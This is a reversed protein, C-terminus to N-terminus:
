LRRVRVEGWSTARGEGAAVGRRCHRLDCVVAQARGDRLTELGNVDLHCVHRTRKVKGQGEVVTRRAVASRQRPVSVRWRFVVRSAELSWGVGRGGKM